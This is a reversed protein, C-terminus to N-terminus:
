KGVLQNLREAEFCEDRAADGPVCDPTCDASTRRTASLTEIAKWLLAIQHDQGSASNILGRLAQSV